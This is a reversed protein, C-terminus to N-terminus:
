SSLGVLMRLVLRIIGPEGATQISCVKIRNSAWSNLNKEEWTGAQVFFLFFFFFPELNSSPFLDFWFYSTSVM